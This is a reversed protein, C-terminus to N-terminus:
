PENQMSALCDGLVTFCFHLHEESIILPPWLYMVNRMPRVFLGRQWARACVSAALAAGGEDECIEIAAIMGRASSYSKPLYRRQLDRMQQEMLPILPQIREIINEEEYLELARLALASVIPNGCYTHGHFFSEGGLSPRFSQYIADSAILASMPLYGGTLGKGLSM